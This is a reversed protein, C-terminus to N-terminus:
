GFTVYRQLKLALEISGFNNVAPPPPLEGNQLMEERLESLRTYLSRGYPHEEYANWYPLFRPNLEKRSFNGKEEVFRQIRYIGVYWHGDYNNCHRFDRCSLMIMAETFGVATLTKVPYPDRAHPGYFEEKSWNCTHLNTTLTFNREDSAPTHPTLDPFHFLTLSQKHLDLTEIAYKPHLHFHVEPIPSNRHKQISPCNANLLCRPLGALLLTQMAAEIHNDPIVFSIDNRQAMSGWLVHPVKAEDFYRAVLQVLKPSPLGAFKSSPLM